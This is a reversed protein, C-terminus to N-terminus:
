DCSLSHHNFRFRPLLVAGGRGLHDYDKAGAGFKEALGPKLLTLAAIAFIPTLRPPGGATAPNITLCPNPRPSATAISLISISEVLYNLSPGEWSSQRLARLHLKRKVGRLVGMAALKGFM